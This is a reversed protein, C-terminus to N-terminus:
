LCTKYLCKYDCISWIQHYVKLFHAGEWYVFPYFQISEHYTLLLWIFHYPTKLIKVTWFYPNYRIHYCNKPSGDLLDPKLHELYRSELKLYLKSNRYIGKNSKQKLCRWRLFFLFCFFVSMFLCVSTFLCIYSCIFLIANSNFYKADPILANHSISECVVCLSHFFFPNNKYCTAPHLWFLCIYIYIIEVLHYFFTSM